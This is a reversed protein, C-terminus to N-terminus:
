LVTTAKEGLIWGKTPGTIINTGSKTAHLMTPVDNEIAVFIAFCEDRTDQMLPHERLTVVDLLVLCESRANM